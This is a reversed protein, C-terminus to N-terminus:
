GEQEGELSLIEILTKHMELLSDIKNEPLEVFRKLAINLLSSDGFARERLKCGENTLCISVTRQDQELRDRRLLRLEVMRKVVVSLTSCGIELRESLESLSLNADNELARLIMMQVPTLGLDDAQLRVMNGMARNVQRFSRMVDAAKSNHFPVDSHQLSTVGMRSVHLGRITQM